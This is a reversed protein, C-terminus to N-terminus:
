SVHPAHHLWYSHDGKKAPNDGADTDRYLPVHQLLRQLRRLALPKTM